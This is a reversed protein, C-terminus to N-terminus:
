RRVMTSRSAPGRRRLQGPHRIPQQPHRAPLTAAGTSSGSLTGSVLIGTEDITGGSAILHTTGAGGGDSVFGALTLSSGTLSVSTAIVKGTSGVTLGATDDLQALAGGTM